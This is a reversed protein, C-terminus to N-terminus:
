DPDSSSYEYYGGYGYGESKLDLKTILAGLLSANAANLRGLAVRTKGVRARDSELVFLTAGVHMALTAADALGLVPPGDFLVYDYKQELKQVFMVFRDSNLVSAADDIASGALLFDVPDEGLRHIAKDMTVTQALMDSLGTRDQVKLLKHLRPRRLDADVLLVRKGLRAIDRALTLLTTSKGESPESSTVVVSKIGLTGMRLILNTRLSHIAESQESKPDEFVDIVEDDGHYAPIAGLVPVHLREQVDAPTRLRDDALTRLATLVAALVTGFFLSLLINFAVRPSSPILPPTAEDVLTINNSIITSQASVRKFRQLLDDYLARNTDVERSLIKQQVSRDQESLLDGQLGGVRGKLEACPRM